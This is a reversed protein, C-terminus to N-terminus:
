SLAILLVISFIVDIVFGAKVSVTLLINTVNSM